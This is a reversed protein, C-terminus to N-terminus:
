PSWAKWATQQPRTLLKNAEDNDARVETDTRYVRNHKKVAEAITRGEAVSLSIPKELAIDKRAKAAEIAMHAHWPDRVTGIVRTALM